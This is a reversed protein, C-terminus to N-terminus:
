RTTRPCSRSPSSKRCPGSKMAENGSEACRATGDEFDLLAVDQHQWQNSALELGVEEGDANILRVDSVYFRMDQFEITSDMMGVGEYMVGCQVEQDNVMAAFNLTVSRQAFGLSVLPALVATLLFTCTFINM